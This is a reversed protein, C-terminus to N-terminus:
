AIVADWMNTLHVGRCTPQLSPCFFFFFHALLRLLGDWFLFVPALYSLSPSPSAAEWIPNRPAGSTPHSPHTPICSPTSTPFVWGVAMMIRVSQRVAGVGEESMRIGASRKWSIRQTLSAAASHQATPCIFSSIAHRSTCPYHPPFTRPTLFLLPFFLLLLLSYLHSLPVTALLVQNSELLLSRSAGGNKQLLLAFARCVCASLKTDM